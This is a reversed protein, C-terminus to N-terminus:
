YVFRGDDFELITRGKKTIKERICDVYVVGALDKTLNPTVPELVLNQLLQKRCFEERGEPTPKQYSFFIFILLFLNLIKM